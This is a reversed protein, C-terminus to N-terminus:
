SSEMVTLPLTHVEVRGPEQCVKIEQFLEVFCDRLWSASGEARCDCAVTKPNISEGAIRRFVVSTEPGRGQGMRSGSSLSGLLEQGQCLSSPDRLIGGWSGIPQPRLDM